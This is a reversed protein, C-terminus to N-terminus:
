PFQSSASYRGWGKRYHGHSFVYEIEGQQKELSLPDHKVIGNHKAEPRM